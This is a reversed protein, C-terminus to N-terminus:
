SPNAIAGVVEGPNVKVVEIHKKYYRFKAFVAIRMHRLWLQM